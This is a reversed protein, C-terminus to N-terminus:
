IPTDRINEYETAERCFTACLRTCLHSKLIIVTEFTLKMRLLTMVRYMCAENEFTLERSCTDYFTVIFSSKSFSYRACCMAVCQLVSCCMAVCQQWFHYRTINALLLVSCCAAVRQLMSCCPAVRQLVRCGYAVRQVLTCCVQHHQRTSQHAHVATPQQELKRGNSDHTGLIVCVMICCCVGRWVVLCFFNLTMFAIPSLGIYTYLSVSVFNLHIPCLPFPAQPVFFCTNTTCLFLHKHCLPFMNIHFMKMLSMKMHSMNMHSVNM